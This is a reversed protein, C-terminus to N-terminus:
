PGGTDVKMYTRDGSRLSNYILYFCVLVAFTFTGNLDSLPLASSVSETSREYM